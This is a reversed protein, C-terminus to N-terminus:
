ALSATNATIQAQVEGTQAVGDSARKLASSRKEEIDKIAAGLAEFQANLKLLRAVLEKVEASIDTAEKQAVAVSIDSVAKGIRATSEMVTQVNRVQAAVKQIKMLKEGVEVIQPLTKGAKVARHAMVALGVGPTLVSVAVGVAIDTVIDFGMKIWNATEESAGFVDTAVLKALQGITPSWSLPEKGQSTRVENIVDVTVGAAMYAGLAFLGAGVLAGAGTAMAAVGVVMAAVAVVATIVKSVWGFLKGWFGPEADKDKQIKEALKQIKDQNDAALKNKVGKIQEATVKSIKEQAEDMLAAAAIQLEEGSLGEFLDKAVAPLEPHDNLYTTFDGFAAKLEAHAKMVKAVDDASLGALAVEASQGAALKSLLEQTDLQNGFLGQLFPQSGGVAVM